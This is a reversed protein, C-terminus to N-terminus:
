RHRERLALLAGSGGIAALGVLAPSGFFPIATVEVSSCGQSEGAENAATVRYRYTTDAETQSDVYDPSSTTAVHEFAGDETARYVHYDQARASAEWTLTVEESQEPQAQLDEPCAPAGEGGDPPQGVEVPPCGNAQGHQNVAVVTYALSSTREHALDVGLDLFTTGEVRAIEDFQGDVHGRLILYADARETANWTLAVLNGTAQIRVDLPCSPLGPISIQLVRCETSEGAENLAVVRYDYTANADVDTDLFATANVEAIKSLSENALARHIAYAEAQASANWRLSVEDEDTLGIRLDQPCEPPARVDDGECAQFRVDHDQSEHGDMSAWVTWNGSEELTFPGAVFDYGGDANQSANWEGLLHVDATVSLGTQAEIQGQAHTMDYGRIWFRCDVEVPDATVSASSQPPGDQRDHFTITGHDESDTHALAGAAVATLAVVAVVLFLRCRYPKPQRRADPRNRRM